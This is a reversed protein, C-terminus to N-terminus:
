VTVRTEDVLLWIVEKYKYAAIENRRLMVSGFQLSLETSM